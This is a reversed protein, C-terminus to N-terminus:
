NSSHTDSVQKYKNRELGDCIVTLLPLYKVSGDDMICVSVCNFLSLSIFSGGSGTIWFPDLNLNLVSVCPVQLKPSESPPFRLAHLVDLSFLLVSAPKWYRYVHTPHSLASALQNRSLACLINENKACCNCLSSHKDSSKKPPLLSGHM